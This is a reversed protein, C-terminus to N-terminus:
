LHRMAENGWEGWEGMQGNPPIPPYPKVLGRGYREELESDSKANSFLSRADDEGSELESIWNAVRESLDSGAIEYIKNGYRLSRLIYIRESDVSSYNRCSAIPLQSLRM